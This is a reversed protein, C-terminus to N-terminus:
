TCVQSATSTNGNALSRVASGATSAILRAAVSSVAARARRNNFLNEEEVLGESM